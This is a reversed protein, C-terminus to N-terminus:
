FIYSLLYWINDDRMETIDIMGFFTNFDENNDENKIYAELNTILQKEIRTLQPSDRHPSQFDICPDELSFTDLTLALPECCEKLPKM